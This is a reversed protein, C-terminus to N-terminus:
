KKATKSSGKGVAIHLAGRLKEVLQKAEGPASILALAFFCSVLDVNDFVSKVAVYWRTFSLLGWPDSLINLADMLNITFMAILVGFGWWPYAQTGESYKHEGGPTTSGYLPKSLEEYPYLFLTIIIAGLLGWQIPGLWFSPWIWRSIVIGAFVKIAWEKSYARYVRWASAAAITVVVLTAGKFTTAVFFCFVLPTERSLLGNIALRWKPWTMVRVLTTGWDEIIGIRRAGIHLLITLILLFLLTAIFPFSTM